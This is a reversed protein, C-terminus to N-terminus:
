ASQLGMGGCDTPKVSMGHLQMHQAPSKHQAPVCRVGLVNDEAGCPHGSEFSTLPDSPLLVGLHCSLWLRMTIRQSVYQPVFMRLPVPALLSTLIVPVTSSVCCVAPM